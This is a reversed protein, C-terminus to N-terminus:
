YFGDKKEVLYPSFKQIYTLHIGAKMPNFHHWRRLMISYVKHDRQLTGRLVNGLQLKCSPLAFQQIFSVLVSIVLLHVFVKIM